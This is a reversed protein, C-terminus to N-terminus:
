THCILTKVIPDVKYETGYGMTKTDMYEVILEINNEEPELGSEIGSM